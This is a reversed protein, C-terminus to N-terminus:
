LRTLIFRMEKDAGFLAPTILAEVKFKGTTTCKDSDDEANDYGYKAGLPRDSISIYTKYCGAYPNTFGIILYKTLKKGEIKFMMGGTVGEFWSGETSAVSGIGTDNYKIPSQIRDVWTGTCFYDEVFTLTADGSHNLVALELSRTRGAFKGKKSM